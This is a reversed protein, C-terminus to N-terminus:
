ESLITNMKDLVETIKKGFSESVEDFCDEDSLQFAKTDDDLYIYVRDLDPHNIYVRYRGGKEWVNFRKYDILMVYIRHKKVSSLLKKDGLIANLEEVLAIEKLLNEDRMDGIIKRLVGFGRVYFKMSEDLTICNSDNVNGSSTIRGIRFFTPMSNDCNQETIEEKTLMKIKLDYKDIAREIRNIVSETMMKAIADVRSKASEIAKSVDIKPEKIIM